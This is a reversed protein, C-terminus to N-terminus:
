KIPPQAVNKCSTAYNTYFKNSTDIVGAIYARLNLIYDVLANEVLIKDQRQVTTLPTM